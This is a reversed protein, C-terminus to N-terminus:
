GGEQRRNLNSRALVAPMKKNVYRLWVPSQVKYRARELWDLRRTMQAAIKRTIVAFAANQITQRNSDLNISVKACGKETQDTVMPLSTTSSRVMHMNVQAAFITNDSNEVVKEGEGELSQIGRVLRIKVM